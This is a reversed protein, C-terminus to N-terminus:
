RRSAKWYRVPLSIGNRNMQVTSNVIGKSIDVPMMPMTSYRPKKKGCRPQHGSCRMPRAAVASTVKSSYRRISDIRTIVMASHTIM